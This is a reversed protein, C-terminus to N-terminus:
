IKLTTASLRNLRLTARSDGAYAKLLWRLDFM